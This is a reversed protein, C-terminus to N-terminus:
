ISLAFTKREWELYDKALPTTQSLEQILMLMNSSADLALYGNVTPSMEVFSHINFYHYSMTEPTIMKEIIQRLNDKDGKLRGGLAIYKIAGKINLYELPSEILLREEGEYAWDSHKKFFLERYNHQVFDSVGAYKGEIIIDNPACHSGYEVSEMRYFHKDLLDKNNAILSEKDLVICVGKSDEAYHAWLAPHNTGEQCVPGTMYNKSFSIVSCQEKIYKQANYMMMFDLAVWDLNDMNAENLDNMGCLPSSRLTMTDIIDLFRKIKTFHFLAGDDPTPVETNGYPYFPFQIM